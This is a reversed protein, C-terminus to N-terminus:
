SQRGADRKGGPHHFPLCLPSLIRQVMRGHRNSDPGRCTIGARQRNCPMARNWGWSAAVAGVGNALADALESQRGSVFGQHAEDLGGYAFTALVALGGVAGGSWAPFQLRLARCALVALGGFVLAHLLKDGIGVQPLGDGRVSSVAFIGAAYLATLTWRLVRGGRRRRANGDM